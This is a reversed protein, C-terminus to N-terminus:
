TLKTSANLMHKVAVFLQFSVHLLCSSGTNIPRKDDQSVDIIFMGHVSGKYNTMLNKSNYTPDCAVVHSLKTFISLNLM